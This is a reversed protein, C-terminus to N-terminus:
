PHSDKTASAAVLVVMPPIASRVPMKSATEVFNPLKMKLSQFKLERASVETGMFSAHSDLYSERATQDADMTIVQTAMMVFRERKLRAM